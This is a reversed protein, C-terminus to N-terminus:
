TRVTASSRYRLSLYLQDTRSYRAPERQWILVGAPLTVAISKSLIAAVLRALTDLYRSRRSSEIRRIWHLSVALYFLSSLLGKREIVCVGSEVHVPHFSIASAIAWGGPVDLRLMLRWGVLCNALQLLLNVEHYGLPERGWVM